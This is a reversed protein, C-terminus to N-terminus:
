PLPFGTILGEGGPEVIVRMPVGDRVGDVLLRVSAGNKTVEAGLKGTQQVWTLNPDTAIDSINHMIQGPSRSSPILTNGAEGPPLHGNLIHTTRSESALNVLGREAEAAIVFHATTPTAAHASTRSAMGDLATVIAALLGVIAVDAVRLRRADSM